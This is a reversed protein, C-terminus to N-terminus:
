GIARSRGKVWLRGVEGPPLSQGEEDCVRVEFGPVAKGLTGPRVDEPHNSLFIHWM